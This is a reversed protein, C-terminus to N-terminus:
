QAYSHLRSLQRLTNATGCLSVESRSPRTTRSLNAIAEAAALMGVARDLLPINSAPVWELKEAAPVFGVGYCAEALYGYVRWDAFKSTTPFGKISTWTCKIKRGFRARLRSEGRHSLNEIVGDSDAVMDALIEQDTEDALNLGVDFMSGLDRPRVRVVKAGCTALIQGAFPAAVARGIEVFRHSALCQSTEDDQSLLAGPSDTRAEGEIPVIIGGIRVPLAPIGFEQLAEAIRSPTTGPRRFRSVIRSLLDHDEDRLLSVGIWGGNVPVFGSWEPSVPPPSAVYLPSTDAFLPAKRTPMSALLAVALAGLSAAALLHVLGMDVLGGPSEKRQFRSLRITVDAGNHPIVRLENEIVFVTGHFQGVHQLVLERTLTPLFSETLIRRAIMLVTFRKSAVM